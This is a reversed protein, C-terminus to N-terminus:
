YKKIWVLNQEITDGEADRFKIRVPYWEMSPALWIDIRQDAANKTIHVTATDGFATPLTVNEEVTFTWKDADRRGAVDFIWQSNPVFKKPSARAISILQWIASTRDQEGNKLPYPDSSESFLIKKAVRDFTTQVNKKRSKEEYKNPALGFSNVSGFSNAELIKGLLDARTETTISYTKDRKTSKVEWQIDAEGNLTFGNRDAKLSYHLQASPPTNIPHKITTQNNAGASLVFLLAAFPLSFQAIFKM